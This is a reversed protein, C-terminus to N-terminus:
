VPPLNNRPGHSEVVLTLDDTYKANTSNVHPVATEFRWHLHTANIVTMLGYGYNNTSTVGHQGARLPAAAHLQRRNVEQDGPAATIITTMFHPNTYLAAPNTANGLNNNMCALDVAGTGNAANPYEPADRAYYHM